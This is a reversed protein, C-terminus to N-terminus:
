TELGRHQRVNLAKWKLGPHDQVIQLMAPDATLLDAAIEGRDNLLRLFELEHDRLPLVLSLRERCQAVLSACWSVMEPRGPAHDARLMPFLETQAETVSLNVDAVSVTRWDKRNIGGYIV